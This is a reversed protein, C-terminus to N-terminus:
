TGSGPQSTNQQGEPEVQPDYGVDIRRQERQQKNREQQEIQPALAADRLAKIDITERPTNSM